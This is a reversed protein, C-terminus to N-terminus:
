RAFDVADILGRELAVSFSEVQALMRERDLRHAARALVDANRNLEADFREAVQNTVIVERQADCNGCRLMIWWGEAGAEEWELPNVFDRGCAPCTELGTRRKM